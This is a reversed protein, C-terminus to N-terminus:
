PKLEDSDTTRADELSSTGNPSAKSQEDNVEAKSSDGLPSLLVRAERDSPPGMRNWEPLEEELHFASDRASKLDADYMVDRYILDSLISLRLSGQFPDEITDSEFFTTLLFPLSRIVLRLICYLLRRLFCRSM